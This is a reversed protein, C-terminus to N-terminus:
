RYIQSDVDQVTNQLQTKLATNINQAIEQSDGGRADVTVNEVTVSTNQNVNTNNPVGIMAASAPAPELGKNGFGYFEKINQFFGGGEEDGLLTGKINEKLTELDEFDKIFQRIGDAAAWINTSLTSSSEM